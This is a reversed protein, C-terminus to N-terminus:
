MDFGDYRLSKIIVLTNVRELMTGPIVKKEEECNIYIYKESKYFNIKLFFRVNSTLFTHNAM